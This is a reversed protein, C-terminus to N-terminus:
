KKNKASVQTQLEFRKRRGGWTVSKRLASLSSDFYMLVVQHANTNHCHSPHHWSSSHDSHHISMDGVHEDMDPKYHCKLLIPSSATQCPRDLWQHAQRLRGPHHPLPQTCRRSWGDARGPETCPSVWRQLLIPGWEQDRM